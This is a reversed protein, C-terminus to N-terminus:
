RRVDRREGPAATAQEITEGPMPVTVRVPKFMGPAHRVHPHKDDLIDGPRLVVDYGLATSVFTTTPRVISM